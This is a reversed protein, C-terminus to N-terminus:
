GKGMIAASESSPLFYIIDSLFILYSLLLFTSYYIFRFGITFPLL